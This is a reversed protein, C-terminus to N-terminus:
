FCYRLGLTFYSLTFYFTFAAMYQLPYFSLLRPLIFRYNLSCQSLYNKAHSFMNKKRAILQHYPHTCVNLLSMYQVCAFISVCVGVLLCQRLIFGSTVTSSVNQIITHFHTHFVAILLCVRQKRAYSINNASAHEAYTYMVLPLM